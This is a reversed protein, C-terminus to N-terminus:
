KKNSKILHKENGGSVEKNTRLMEFILRVSAVCKQYFDMSNIYTEDKFKITMYQYIVEELDALKASAVKVVMNYNVSSIPTSDLVNEYNQIAILLNKMNKYLSFKLQNEINNATANGQDAPVDTGGADDTAGADASDDEAINDEFDGGGDATPDETDLGGGADDAPADEGGTVTPDEETDGTGDDPDPVDETATPDETDLGEGGGETGGTVTPEAPNEAPAPQADPEGTTANVDPEDTDPADNVEEPEPAPDDGLDIDDINDAFDVDDTDDVLELDSDDIDEDPIDEDDIDEVNNGFDKLRGDPFASVVKKYPRRKPAETMFYKEFPTKEKELKVIM